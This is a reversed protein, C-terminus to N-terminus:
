GATHAATLERTNLSLVVRTPFQTGTVSHDPQFSGEELRLELLRLNVDVRRHRVNFQVRTCELAHMAQAVHHIWNRWDSRVLKGSNREDIGCLEESRVNLRAGELISAAYAEQRFISLMGERDVVM